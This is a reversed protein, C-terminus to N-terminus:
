LPFALMLAPGLADPFETRSKFDRRSECAAIESGADLVRLRSIEESEVVDFSYVREPEVTFEVPCIAVRRGFAPSQLKLALKGPAVHFRRANWKVRYNPASGNIQLPAVDQLRFFSTRKERPTSFDLVGHPQHNPTEKFYPTAACGCLLLATVM